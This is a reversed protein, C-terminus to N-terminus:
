LRRCYLTVFAHDGRANGWKSLADTPMMDGLPHWIREDVKYCQRNITMAEGVMPLCPTRGSALVTNTGVEIVQYHVQSM